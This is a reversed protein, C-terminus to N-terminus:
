AFTNSSVLHGNIELLKSMHGWRYSSTGQARNSHFGLANGFILPHPDDESARKSIRSLTKLDDTMEFNLPSKRQLNWVQMVMEVEIVVGLDMLYWLPVPWCHDFCALVRPPMLARSNWNGLLIVQLSGCNKWGLPGPLSGVIIKTGWDCNSWFDSM